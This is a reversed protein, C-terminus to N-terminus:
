GNNPEEEQMDKETMFKGVTKVMNLMFGKNEIRRYKDWLKGFMGKEKIVIAYNAKLNDGIVGEKFLGERELGEIVIDKVKNIELTLETTDFNWQTINM